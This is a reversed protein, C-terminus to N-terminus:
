TECRYFEQYTGPDQFIIAGMSGETAYEVKVRLKTQSSIDVKILIPAIALIYAFKELSEEAEFNTSDRLILEKLTSLVGCEVIRTM